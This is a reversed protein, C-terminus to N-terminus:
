VKGCKFLINGLAFSISIAMYVLTSFARGKQKFGVNNEVSERILLNKRNLKLNRSIFM